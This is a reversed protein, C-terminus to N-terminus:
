PRKGRSPKPQNLFVSMESSYRSQQEPSLRAFARLAYLRAENTLTAARKPQSKRTRKMKSRASAKSVRRVLARSDSRREVRQAAQVALFMRNRLLNPNLRLAFGALGMACRFRQSPTMRLSQEVLLRKSADLRVRRKM